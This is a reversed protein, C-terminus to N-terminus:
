RSLTGGTIQSDYRAPEALGVQSMMADLLTHQNLDEAVAVADYWLGASAFLAVRRPAPATSVAADLSLDRPVRVLTATAVIDRSPADPNLIVVISMTYTIDMELRVGHDALHIAHIGPAQPTPISIEIIPRPQHPARIAFLMPYDVWKSVYFYLSPAASATRGSYKEPAIIEVTPLLTAREITGRAKGDVTGGPLGQLPLLPLPITAVPV